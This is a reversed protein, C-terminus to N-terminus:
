IDVIRVNNGHEQIIRVLDDPKMWVTATNDNPHIGILDITDFFYKDLFVTVKKQEDNLIGLPTVSGPSLNM